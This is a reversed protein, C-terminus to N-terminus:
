SCLDAYEGADFKAAACGSSIKAEGIHPMTIITSRPAADEADDSYFIQLIAREIYGSLESQYDPYFTIYAYPDQDQDQDQPWKTDVTEVSRIMLEDVLSRKGKWETSEVIKWETNIKHYQKLVMTTRPKYSGSPTEMRGYTREALQCYDKYPSSSKDPCHDSSELESEQEQELWYEGKALDIALRYKKGSLIATEYAIHVDAAFRSLSSNIRAKVQINLNPLNAYIGAVISIVIILELLSFGAQSPKKDLKKSTFMRM